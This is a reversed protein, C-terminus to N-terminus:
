GDQLGTRSFALGLIVSRLPETRAEISLRLDQDVLEELFLEELKGPDASKNKTRLRCVIEGDGDELLVSMQGMLAYAARKAADISYIATSVRLVVEEPSQAENSM